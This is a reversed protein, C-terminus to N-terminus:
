KWSNVGWIMAGDVILDLGSVLRSDDSALYLAAAAVDDPEITRNIAQQNAFRRSVQAALEESRPHNFGMATFHIETPVFGPSISNVRINHRGLEAAAYRTLHILASKAIAYSISSAGIRHAAISAMNIISGAGRKRFLPLFASMVQWPVKLHISISADFAAADFDAISERNGGHGANNVLIDLGNLHQSYADVLRDCHGDELADARLFLSGTESALKDGAEIDRGTFAVQAGERCFAEVIARGIGKTGGTVLAFKGRLRGDSM